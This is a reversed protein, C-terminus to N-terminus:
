VVCDQLGKGAKIKVRYGEPVIVEKGTQPNRAKRAARKIVNVTMAGPLTVGQKHAMFDGLVELFANLHKAADAQTCGLKRVIHVIVDKKTANKKTAM